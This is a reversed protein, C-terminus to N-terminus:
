HSFRIRDGVGAPRGQPSLGRPAVPFGQTSVVQGTPPLALAMCMATTSGQDQKPVPGRNPYPSFAWEPPRPPAPACREVVGGARPCVLARCESGCPFLTSLRRFSARLSPGQLSTLFSDSCRLFSTAKHSPRQTARQQTGYWALAHSTLDPLRTCPEDAEERFMHVGLVADPKQKTPAPAPTSGRGQHPSRLLIWGWMGTLETPLLGARHAVTYSGAGDM